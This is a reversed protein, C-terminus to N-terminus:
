APITELKRQLLTIRRVALNTKSHSILRFEAGAIPAELEFELEIPDSQTTSGSLESPKIRRETVISAGFNQMVDCMLYGEPKDLAFLDFVVKYRGRPLTLYPGYCLAGHHGNSVLLHDVVSGCVTKIENADAGTVEDWFFGNFGAKRLRAPLKGADPGQLLGDLLNELRFRENDAANLVANEASLRTIEANKIGIEDDDRGFKDKWVRIQQTLVGSAAVAQREVTPEFLTSFPGAAPRTAGATEPKRLTLHIPCFLFGDHFIVLNPYVNKKQELTRHVGVTSNFDQLVARSDYTRSSIEFTPPDILELGSPAVVYRQIMDPTMLLVNDDFGDAGNPGELLFEATLTAVGGPKLIRGVEEMAAALAGPSGLRGLESSAYVADFFNSPLGLARPDSHIPVVSGRAYPRRTYQGPRVMMSAPAVESRPTVELYRDTPFVICGRDALAFTTPGAGAGVGCIMAGPRIMGFDDFTKLRM